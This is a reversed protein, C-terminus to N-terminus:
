LKRLSWRETHYKYQGPAISELTSLTEVELMIDNTYSEVNCCRDAYGANEGAYDYTVTLELGKTHVRIPDEIYMGIKIPQAVDDWRLTIKDQEIRLRDDREDTYSWLVLNRNALLGTDRTSLPYTACAGKDLVSLGWLAVPESARDTFNYFAHQVCVSGDDAMTVTMSKQLGTTSEPESTVTVGNPVFETRVPANDPYYSALDEPSKWLRHGGYIHWAGKGPLNRDFYDGDKRILDQADEYFINEGNTEGYFIIRPGLDTTILLRFAGNSLQVCNGYQKYAINSVTVM